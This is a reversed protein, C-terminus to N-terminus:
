PKAPNQIESDESFYGWSESNTLPRGMQTQRTRGAQTKGLGEKRSETQPIPPQSTM